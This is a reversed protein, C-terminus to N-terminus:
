VREERNLRKNIPDMLIIKELIKYYCNECVIMDYQPCISQFDNSLTIHGPLIDFKGHCIMCHM